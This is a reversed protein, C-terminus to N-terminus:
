NGGAGWLFSGIAFSRKHHLTGQVPLGYDSLLRDLQWEPMVEYNERTYRPYHLPMQFRRGVGQQEREVGGNASMMEM